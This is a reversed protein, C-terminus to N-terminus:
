STAYVVIWCQWDQLLKHMMKDVEKPYYILFHVTSISLLKMLSVTEFNIPDMEKLKQVHGETDPDFVSGIFSYVESFDPIGTVWCASFKWNFFPLALSFIIYKNSCTSVLAGFGLQKFKFSIQCNLMTDSNLNILSRAM